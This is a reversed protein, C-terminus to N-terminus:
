YTVFHVAVHAKASQIQGQSDILGSRLLAIRGSKAGSCPRSPLETEVHM